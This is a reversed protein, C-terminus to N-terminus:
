RRSAKALGAAIGQQIQRVSERSVTQAGGTNININVVVSAGGAGGGGGNPIIMGSTGPRFLEPGSEGVLFSKGPWVPGGDARAGGFLSSGFFEEASNGVLGGGGERGGFLPSEYPAMVTRQFAMKARSRVFHRVFDDMGAKGDILMDALSDGFAKWGDKALDIVMKMNDSMEGGLQRTREATVEMASMVFDEYEKSHEGYKASVDGALAMLEGHSQRIM